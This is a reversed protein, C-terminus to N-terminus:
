KQRRFLRAFFGQHEHTDAAEEEHKRAADKLEQEKARRQEDDNPQRPYGITMTGWGM